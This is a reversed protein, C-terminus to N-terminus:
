KIEISDVISQITALAQTVGPQSGNAVEQSFKKYLNDQDCADKVAGAGDEVYPNISFEINPYGPKFPVLVSIKYMPSCEYSSSVGVMLSKENKSYSLMDWCTGMVQEFQQQTWALNVSQKNFQFCNMFSDTGQNYTHSLINLGIGPTDISAASVGNMWSGSPTDFSVGGRDEHKELSLSPWTSPYRFSLGLEDNTYVKWNTTSAPSSSPLALPLDSVTSNTAANNQVPAMLAFLVAASALLLFVGLVILRNIRSSFMSIKIM